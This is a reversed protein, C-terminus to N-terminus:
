NMKKIVLVLCMALLLLTCFVILYSSSTTSQLPSIDGTLVPAAWYYPKYTHKDATEIFEIKAKQLAKDKPMGDKLNQYFLSMLDKTSKDNANWLTQVISNCKDSFARSISLVGEGEVIEGVGTECASLVIMESTFELDFIDEVYLRNAVKSSDDTYSLLLYSKEFKEDDSKAHSAFHVSEYCGNMKQINEKTADLGSLKRGSFINLITDVETENHELKGEYTRSDALVKDELYSPAIGLVGEAGRFDNDAMNMFQNLSPCQSISFDRLLYPMKKYDLITDTNVLIDFPLHALSGDYSIILRDVNALRSSIPQILSQYLNYSYTLFDVKSSDSNTTNGRILGINEVLETDPLTDCTLKGDNTLVFVYQYEKGTLYSLYATNNDSHNVLEEKFEKPIKQSMQFYYARILGTLKDNEKELETLKNISTTDTIDKTKGIINRISDIKSLTIEIETDNKNFGNIINQENLTITKSLESLYFAKNLYNLDDSVKFLEVNAYIAAEFVERYTKSFRFKDSDIIKDLHMINFLEISRDLHNSMYQLAIMDEDRKYKEGFGKAKAALINLTLEYEVIESIDPIDTYDQASISNPICTLSLATHFKILSSDINGLELHTNAISALANTEIGLHKDKIINYCKQYSELAENYDKLKDHYQGIKVLRVCIGRIDGQQIDKSLLDEFIELAEPYKEMELLVKAKTTLVGKVFVEVDKRGSQEAYDTAKDLYDIIEQAKNAEFDRMYLDALGEYAYGLNYFKTSNFYKIDKLFTANNEFTSKKLVDIGNIFYSKALDFEKRKKALGGLKLYSLAVGIEFNKSRAYNLRKNQLRYSDDLLNMNIYTNSLNNLNGSVFQVEFESQHANLVEEGQKLFSLANDNDKLHEHIVARNVTYSVCVKLSDEYSAKSSLAKMQELYELAMEPNKYKINFATRRLSRIKLGIAETDVEAQGYIGSSFCVFFISFCLVKLHYYKNNM